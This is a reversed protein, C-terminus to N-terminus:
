LLKDVYQCLQKMEFSLQAKAGTKSLTIPLYKKASQKELLDVLVHCFADPWKRKCFECVRVHLLFKLGEAPGQKRCESSNSYATVVMKGGCRMAPDGHVVHGPVIGHCLFEVVDERKRNRCWERYSAQKSEFASFDAMDPTVKALTAVLLERLVAIGMKNLRQRM